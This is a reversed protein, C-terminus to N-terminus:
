LSRTTENRNITLNNERTLAAGDASFNTKALKFSNKIFHYNFSLVIQGSWPDMAKMAVYSREVM